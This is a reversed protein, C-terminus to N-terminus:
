VAQLVQYGARELKRDWYEGDETGLAAQLDGLAKAYQEHSARDENPWAKKFGGIVAPTRKDYGYGDAHHRTMEIGIFHTYAWLRGAGDAPFKIAVTAVREGDKLIVFASVRSFAKDHQEYIDTM